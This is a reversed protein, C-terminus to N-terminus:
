EKVDATFSFDIMGKIGGREDRSKKESAPEESHMVIRQVAGLTTLEGM